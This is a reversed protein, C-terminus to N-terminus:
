GKFTKAIRRTALCCGLRISPSLMWIVLGILILSYFALARSPDNPGDNSLGFVGTFVSFWINLLYAVTLAIAFAIPIFLLLAGIGALALAGIRLYDKQQQLREAIHCPDQPQTSM